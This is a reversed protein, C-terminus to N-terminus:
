PELILPSPRVMMAPLYALPANACTTWYTDGGRKAAARTAAGRPPANAKPRGQPLDDQGPNAIIWPEAECMRPLAKKEKLNGHTGCQVSGCKGKRQQGAAFDVRVLQHPAQAEELAIRVAQACTGPTYYLTLTTM